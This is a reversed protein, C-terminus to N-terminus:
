SISPGTFAGSGAANGKFSNSVHDWLGYEGEYYCPEGDFVLTSYSADSYIQVRGYVRCGSACQRRTSNGSPDNAAFILLNATNTITYNNTKSYFTYDSAGEQKVGLRNNSGGALSVMVDFPTGNDISTSVDISNASYYNYYIFYCLKGTTICVMGLNTTKGESSAVVGLFCSASSGIVAKIKMKASRPSSGKIGTDIYATGDTEIYDVPTYLPTPQSGGSMMLRRRLLTDM